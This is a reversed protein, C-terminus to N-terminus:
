VRVYNKCPGEESQSHRPSFRHASKITRHTHTTLELDSHFAFTLRVKVAGRNVYSSHEFALLLVPTQLSPFTVRPSSVEVIPSVDLPLTISRQHLLLAVM